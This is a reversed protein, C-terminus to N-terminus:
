LVYFANIWRLELTINLHTENNLILIDRMMIHKYIYVYYDDNFM